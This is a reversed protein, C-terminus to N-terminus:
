CAGEILARTASAWSGLPEDAARSSSAGWSMSAHEGIALTGVHAHAPLAVRAEGGVHVVVLDGRAGEEEAIVDLAGREVSLTGRALAHDLAIRLLEGEAAIEPPFVVRIALESEGLLEGIREVAVMVVALALVIRQFPLTADKVRAEALSADLALVVGRRARVAVTEDRVYYLLEGQAWRLDFLDFGLARRLESGEPDMIALESTVLNELTGQTSMSSFGGIPYASEDDLRTPAAGHTPRLRVLRRPLSADLLDAAEALQGLAVREALGRLAPAHRAIALDAASLATPVIRRASALADLRLAVGAAFPAADVAELEAAPRALVRALAAGSPALGADRTRGLLEALVLATAGPRAGPPLRALADGIAILRADSAIPALVHDDFRRLASRMPEVDVTRAAPGRGHEILSALERVASLPPLAGLEERLALAIPALAALADADLAVGSLTLEAALAREEDDEIM